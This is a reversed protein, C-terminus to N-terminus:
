EDSEHILPLTIKVRTGQPDNSEYTLGYRDGYHLQIRRHVNRNGMGSFKYVPTRDDSQIMADEPMGAGNDAIIILLDEAEAKITVEIRGPYDVESLGHIISNELIPQLLLKLLYHDTIEPDIDWNVEIPRGFRIEMIYLYHHLHEVEEEITTLLGGRNFSSALLRTLAHTMNRINDAKSILAMYKISNLTNILFHPNIQSQLAAFEAKRKEVEQMKHKDILEQVQDTMLNFSQGLRVMEVSGSGTYRAKLDGGAVRVLDHIPKTVISVFYFSILVFSLIILIALLWVFSTVSEYNEMISAYPMSQVIFWNSDKVRTYTILEEHAKTDDIFSGKAEKSLESIWKESILSGREAGSNSAIIEGQESVIHLESDSNDRSRLIEDFTGSDFTFLIMELKFLQNPDYPSFAAAMTYPAYNGFVINPMMGLFMATDPTSQVDSYWEHHRIMTQDIKLNKLYSYTRGNNFLFNVSLVRTSVSATYKEILVEMRNNALQREFGTRNNIDLVTLRVDQDMGISAFLGEMRNIEQSVSYAVAQSTQM